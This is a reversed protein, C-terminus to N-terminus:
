EEEGINKLKQIIVDCGQSLQEMTELYVNLGQGYPDIVEGLGTIEGFTCVNKYEALVAKHMSTMTIILDAKSLIEPSAQKSKFSYSKIGITKLALASNKSIKDGAFANLGASSVRYGVLGSEKFKNKLLLEAMPSRCTNGTCIFIIKKM